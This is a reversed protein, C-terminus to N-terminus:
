PKPIRERLQPEGKAEGRPEIELCVSVKSVVGCERGRAFCGDVGVENADPDLINLDTRFVM